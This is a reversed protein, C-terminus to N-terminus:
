CSSYRTAHFGVRLFVFFLPFSMCVEHVQPLETLSKRGPLRDHIGPEVQRSPDRLGTHLSHIAHGHRDTLQHETSGQGLLPPSIWVELPPYPIRYRFPINVPATNRNGTVDGSGRARLAQTMFAERRGEYIIRTLPCAPSPYSQKACLVIKLIM